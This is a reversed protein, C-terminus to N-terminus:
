DGASQLWFALEPYAPLDKYPHRRPVCFGAHSIGNIGIYSNHALCLRIDAGGNDYEEDRIILEPPIDLVKGAAWAWATAEPDSTQLAARYLPDDPHPNTADIEDLMRSIGKGINGSLYHRFRNPVIALHGAEHLCASAPAQPDVLLEGDVINIHEVFGSAGAQIKVKLGIKQLFEVARGAHPCIMEAPM